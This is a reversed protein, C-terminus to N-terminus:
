RAANQLIGEQGAIASLTTLIGTPNCECSLVPRSPGFLPLHLVLCDVCLVVKIDPSSHIGALTSGEQPTSSIGRQAFIVHYDWVCANAGHGAVQLMSVSKSSNSIFIVFSQAAVAASSAGSLATKALLYVNEECYCATYSYTPRAAQAATAM